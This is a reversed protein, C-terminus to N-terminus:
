FYDAIKVARVQSWMRMMPLSVCNLPFPLTRYIQFTQTGLLFGLLRCLPGQFAHFGSNASHFSVVTVAFIRRLAPPTVKVFISTSTLLCFYTLPLKETGIFQQFFVFSFLIHDLIKEASLKLPHSIVCRLCNGCPLFFFCMLRSIFKMKVDIQTFMGSFDNQITAIWHYSCIQFFLIGTKPFLCLLVLFLCRHHPLCRLFYRTFWFHLVLGFVHRKNGPTWSGERWKWKWLFLISWFSSHRQM